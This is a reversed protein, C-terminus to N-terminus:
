YTNRGKSKKKEIDNNIIKRKVRTSEILEFLDERPIFSGGPLKNDQILQDNRLLSKILFDTDLSTWGSSNNGMLYFLNMVWIKRMKEAVKRESPGDIKNPGRSDKSYVEYGNKLEGFYVPKIGAKCLEYTLKNIKAYISSIVNLGGVDKPTVKQTFFEKIPQVQSTVIASFHYAMDSNGVIKDFDIQDSFLPNYISRLEVSDKRSLDLWHCVLTDIHRITRHSGVPKSKRERSKSQTISDTYRFLKFLMMEAYDDSAFGINAKSNAFTAASLKKALEFAKLAEADGCGSEKKMKWIMYESIIKADIGGSTEIQFFNRYINEDIGYDRDAQIEINGGYLGSSQVLHYEEIKDLGIRKRAADNDRTSENTENTKANLYALFESKENMMSKKIKDIQFYGRQRWDWAQNVPLGRLGMKEKLFFKIFERDLSHDLDGEHLAGVVRVIDEITHCKSAALYFNHLFMRMEIERKLTEVGVTGLKKGDISMNELIGDYRGNSVSYIIRFSESNRSLDDVNSTGREIYEIKEYIGEIGGNILDKIVDDERMQSYSRRAKEKNRIGLIERDIDGTEDEKTEDTFERGDHTTRLEDFDRGNVNEEIILKSVDAYQRVLSTTPLIATSDKIKRGVEVKTRDFTGPDYLNNSEIQSNIEILKGEEDKSLVMGKIDKGIGKFSKPLYSDIDEATMSDTVLDSGLVSLNMAIFVSNVLSERDAIAVARNINPNQSRNVMDQFTKDGKGFRSFVRESLQNRKEDDSSGFFDVSNKCLDVANDCTNKYKSIEVKSEITKNFREAFSPTREGM